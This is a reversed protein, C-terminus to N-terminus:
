AVFENLPNFPFKEKLTIECLEVNFVVEPCWPKEQYIPSSKWHIGPKLFGKERLFSLTQESIGLKEAANFPNTWFNYL